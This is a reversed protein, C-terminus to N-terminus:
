KQIQLGNKLLKKILGDQLVLYFYIRSLLFCFKTYIELRKEFIFIM